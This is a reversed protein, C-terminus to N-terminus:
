KSCSVLHFTIIEPVLFEKNLIRVIGFRRSILIEGCKTPCCSSVFKRPRYMVLDSRNTTERLKRDMKRVWTRSRRRWLDFEETNALIGSNERSCYSRQKRSVAQVSGARMTKTTEQQSRRREEAPPLFVSSFHDSVVSLTQFEYSAATQHVKLRSNGIIRVTKRTKRRGRRKKRVRVAFLVCVVRFGALFCRPNYVNPLRLTIITSKAFRRRNDAIELAIPRQRARAKM